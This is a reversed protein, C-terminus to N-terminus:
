KKYRALVEAIQKALEQQEAFVTKQTTIRYAGKAPASPTKGTFNRNGGVPVKRLKAEKHRQAVEANIQRITTALANVNAAIELNWVNTPIEPFASRLSRNAQEPTENGRFQRVIKLIRGHKPPFNARGFLMKGKPVIRPLRKRPTM